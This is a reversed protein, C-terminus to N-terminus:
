NGVKLFFVPRLLETINPKKGKKTLFYSILFNCLNFIVQGLNHM